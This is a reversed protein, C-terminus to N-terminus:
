PQHDSRNSTNQSIYVGVLWAVMVTMYIQGALAEMMSFTQSISNSPIVDGYGLSTLTIFSFYFYDYQTSENFIDLSFSNPQLLDCLVYIFGWLFGLLLYICISGAIIDSTVEKTTFVIKFLCFIIFGIFIINTFINITAGLQTEIFHPLWSTILTPIALLLGITLTKKNNSISYVSFVLLVTM